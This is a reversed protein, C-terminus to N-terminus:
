IEELELSTSFQNLLQYKLSTPRSMKGYLQFAQEGQQDDTSEPTLSIFMPRYIGNRMLGLFVNRDSNTLYNLDLNLTKHITGRDTRLDGADTRENKSTDIVGLTAGAEATYTPSWYNGIILRGVEIFGAPNTTDSIILTVKKYVGGPGYMAAYSGGGYNYANVGLPQGGWVLDSLNVGSLPSTLSDFVAIGDTAETYGRFRITASPSINTFALVAANILEANAWTITIILSSPLSSSRWVESKFDTLMNAPLLSGASNTATLTLSRDAANDFVVRMNAM